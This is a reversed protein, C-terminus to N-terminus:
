PAVQIGIQEFGYNKLEDMAQTVDEFSSSRDTSLIVPPHVGTASLEALRTRFEALTLPEPGIKLSGDAAVHISLREPTTEPTGSEVIRPLKVTQPQPSVWQGAAATATTATTAGGAAPQPSAQGGSAQGGTPQVAIPAQQNYLHEQLVDAWMKELGDVLDAFAEAEARRRAQDIAKETNWSNALQSEQASGEALGYVFGNRTDILVASATTNIRPKKHPLVGLTVVDIPSTSDAVHIHTDLTYVLLMQAGVTAAARRLDEDNNMKSGSMVLGSIPAIGSIMPLKYLREYDEKNEVDRTTVLSYAGTGYSNSTYSKYGPEQVRAVAIRTPFSALPKREILAAYGPDTLNERQEPTLEPAAFVGMDAAGGPAAYHASCGGLLSLTSLALLAVIPLTPKM